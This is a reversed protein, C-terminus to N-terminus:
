SVGITNQERSSVLGNYMPGVSAFRLAVGSDRANVGCRSRWVFIGSKGRKHVLVRERRARQGGAVLAGLRGVIGAAEWVVRVKGFVEGLCRVFLFKVMGEPCPPVCAGKGVIAPNRM